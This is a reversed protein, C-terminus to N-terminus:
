QVRYLKCEGRSITVQEPNVWVTSSNNIVQIAHTGPALRIRKGETTNCAPTRDVYPVDGHNVQNIFITFSGSTSQKYFIVTGYEDSSLDERGCSIFFLVLIFYKINLFNLLSNRRIKTQAM